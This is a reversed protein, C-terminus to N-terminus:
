KICVCHLLTANRKVCRHTIKKARKNEQPLFRPDVVSISTYIHINRWMKKPRCFPFFVNDFNHATHSNKKEERLAINGIKSCGNQNWENFKLPVCVGTEKHNMITAFCRQILGFLKMVIKKDSQKIPEWHCNWKPHFM